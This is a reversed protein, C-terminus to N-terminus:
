IYGAADCTYVGAPLDRVLERFRGESIRLADEARQREILEAAFRAYLDTFRLDRDSPRHPQRFHTSIVGLPDGRRGFVPTSQVGRFGASTAISHHPAFAPDTLVDEVIVREGRELARSCIGGHGIQMSSFHDLFEQHFGRQAVIELAGTKPMTFSCM